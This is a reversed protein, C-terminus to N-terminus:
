RKNVMQWALKYIPLGMKLSIYALKDRKPTHSDHMVTKGNDKIFNIIEAKKESYENTYLMQNLTSFRSYVRRRMVANSLDPYATIVDDGMKDTMELLDLKRKNFGGSVISDKRVMYNYKSEYGVSIQSSKMMLKYTTAIDEFLKGYPYEIGDFLDKRYMKAWASTDIVDHYLMREICKKSSLVEDTSNQPTYIVKSGNIVRHQCISMLPNHKKLLTYLYEVYDADVSDDSDVCVVYDGTAQKIGQNRADSLGGNAKHIVDIRSDLSAWKDCKIGSKDTSGDDILIIELNTFTQSVLSRLCDDMYEEVNYVPVILSIKDM